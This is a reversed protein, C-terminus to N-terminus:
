KKDYNRTFGVLSVVIYMLSIVQLITLSIESKIQVMSVGIFIGIAIIYHLFWKKKTQYNQYSM